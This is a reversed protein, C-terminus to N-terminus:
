DQKVKGSFHNVKPSIPNGTIRRFSTIQGCHWISDAIPGNINNWFPIRSSGFIIEFESIDESARLIDAAQKLNNLTVSRQAEFDLVTNDKVNEQKLTSNLVIISLEYIHKVTEGTTRVSDSPKYVLDAETLGDTAHYFRFGLADVQRAAVTGATFTKSAEPLEYYPLEKTQSLMTTTITLILLFVLRKM